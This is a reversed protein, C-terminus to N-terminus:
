CHDKGWNMARIMCNRSGRDSNLRQLGCTVDNDTLAVIPLNRTHWLPRRPLGLRQKRRGLRVSRRELCGGIRTLFHGYSIAVISSSALHDPVTVPTWTVLASGAM